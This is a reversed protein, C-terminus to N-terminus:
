TAPFVYEPINVDLVHAAADVLVQNEAFSLDVENGDQPRQFFDAVCAANMDFEASVAVIGDIGSAAGEGKKTFDNKLCIPFLSKEVPDRREASANTPQV